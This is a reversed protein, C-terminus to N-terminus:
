RKHREIAATLDSSRLVTHRLAPDDISSPHVLQLHGTLLATANEMMIRFTGVQMSWAFVMLFISFGVGGASLWTRRRNRWLNRWAIDITASGLRPPPVIATRAATASLADTSM